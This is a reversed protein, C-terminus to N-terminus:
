EQVFKGIENMLKKMSKVKEPTVDVGDPDIITTHLLAYEMSSRFLGVYKKRLQQQEAKEERTLGCMKEKCALQNLKDLLHHMTVGGKM